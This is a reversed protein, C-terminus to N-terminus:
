VIKQLNMKELKPTIEKVLASLFTELDASAVATTRDAAGYYVLLKAGKIVAGCVYIVGRKHGNNEYDTEPELVPEVARHLIVDPHQLDLLMVGVKYKGPDRMDMGHYFVLWGYKTWLPPAGVGRVINDWAHLRAAEIYGGGGHSMLSEIYNGDGLSMPDDIYELKIKPSLGHLIVYRGAIREPFLVWNKQIKGPQSILKPRSWNWRKALFDAKSIHTLAVGPPHSGDFAIYMLYVTGDIEVLRPDECGGTGGGSVYPYPSDTQKMMAQAPVFAPMDDREDITIGDSSAAYGLVSLGDYGQARYLLHVRDNLVIAAPNFTAFAEWSHRVVPELVPNAPLRELSIAVGKKRPPLVFERLTSKQFSEWYRALPFVEVSRGASQTYLYFYKGVTAGGLLRVSSDGNSPEEWLAHDTRWLLKKPHARDFLAAGVVGRGQVNKAGYVLLIGTSVLEAYLPQLASVDFSRPRANLADGTERFHSLDTSSRAEILTRSGAAAFAILHSAQKGKKPIRVCVAAGRFPTADAVVKWSGGRELTAFVCRGREDVFSLVLKARLTSVRVQPEAGFVMKKGEETFITVQSSSQTFRKGNASEVSFIGPSVSKLGRWFLSVKDKKKFVLLGQYVHPVPM